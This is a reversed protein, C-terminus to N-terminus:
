LAACGVGFLAIAIIVNNPTGRFLGFMATSFLILVVGALPILWDFLQHPKSKTLSPRDDAAM